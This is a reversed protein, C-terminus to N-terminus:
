SFIGFVASALCSRAVVCIFLCRLQVVKWGVSLVCSEDAVLFYAMCNNYNIANIGNSNQPMKSLISQAVNGIIENRCVWRLQDTADLM